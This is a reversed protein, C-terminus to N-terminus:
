VQSLYVVEVQLIAACHPELFGEDTDIRAVRTNRAIGGRTPDSTLKDVTDRVLANLITSLNGEESRHFVVVAFSHTVKAVDKLLRERVRNVDNLFSSPYDYNDFKEMHQRDCEKMKVGDGDVVTLITGRLHSAVAEATTYALSV